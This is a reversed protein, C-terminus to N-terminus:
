LARYRLPFYMNISLLDKPYSQEKAKSSRKYIYTHAYLGGSIRFTTPGRKTHAESFLQKELQQEQRHTSSKCIIDSSSGNRQTVEGRTNQIQNSKSCLKVHSQVAAADM